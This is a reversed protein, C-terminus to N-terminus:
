EASTAAVRAAEHRMYLYAAGLPLTSRAQAPMGALRWTLPVVKYERTRPGGRHGTHTVLGPAAQLTHGFRVAHWWHLVVTAHPLADRQLCWLGADGDCLVTASTDATVGAM